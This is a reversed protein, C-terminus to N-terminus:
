RLRVPGATVHQLNKSYEEGIFAAFRLAGGAVASPVNFTVMLKGEGSIKVVKRELRKQNGDKLTVHVMQEGHGAKLNHSVSIAISEGAKATKPWQISILREGKRSLAKSAPKKRKLKRREQAETEVRTMYANLKAQDDRGRFAELARDDTDKMWKELIRRHRAIEIRKSPDDILNRLCDPDNAVDYFEELVRYDFLKLRAAVGDNSQALEKMRRYTLTGTTATKFTREGDAWANFIYCYKRTQVSRM